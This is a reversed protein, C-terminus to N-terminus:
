AKKTMSLENEMGIGSDFSLGRPSKLGGRRAREMIEFKNEDWLWLGSVGGEVDLKKMGVQAGELDEMLREAVVDEGSKSFYRREFERGEVKEVRRLERQENEIKSKEKGITFMDAEDIAAAVHQWARRSELPNQEELPKVMFPSRELKAVDIKEVLIKSRVDKVTYEGSWVGEAEYLPESKRGDVGDKLLLAKFSNRKGGLWGKYSYDIKATYGSSSRIYSSGSLEPSLSASMLGEVHIKPMTILYDEDFADIHLVSYGKRDIHVTSSFYIKPAVNGHLQISNVEIRGYCLSSPCVRIGHEENWLNFATVPPHHCVQEAVMRTIGTDPDRWAGEFVEGLFPNLPKMKKKKGNEDKSSHQHKLTSLFWKM